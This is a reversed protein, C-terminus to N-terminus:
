SDISCIIDYIYYRKSLFYIWILFLQIKAYFCDCLSQFFISRLLLSASFSLLNTQYKFGIGVITSKSSLKSILCLCTYDLAQLSFRVRPEDRFTEWGRFSHLSALWQHWHHRQHWWDRDNIDNELAKLVLKTQCWDFFPKYIPQLGTVLIWDQTPIETQSTRESGFM